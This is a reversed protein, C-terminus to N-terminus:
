FSIDWQLRIRQSSYRRKEFGDNLTLHSVDLTVKNRHGDIFYNAALTFEQRRNDYRTTRGGLTRYFPEDVFAYRFALELEPPVVPVVNHFFYGAQAYSGVM